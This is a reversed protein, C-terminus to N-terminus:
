LYREPLQGAPVTVTVDTPLNLGMTGNDVYNYLDFNGCKTALAFDVSCTRGSAPTIDTVTIADDNDVIVRNCKSWQQHHVRKM